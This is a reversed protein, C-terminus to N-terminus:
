GEGDEGEAEGAGGEEDLEEEDDPDPPPCYYAIGRDRIYAALEEKIHTQAILLPFVIPYLGLLRNLKRWIFLDVEDKSFQRKSEGIIMVDQGNRSARGFITVEVAKGKDDALYGRTLREAVSVGYKSELEAKVTEYLTEELCDGVLAPLKRVPHRAKAQAEKLQKLEEETRQQVAALAEIRQEAQEQAARLASYVATMLKAVREVQEDTFDSGLSQRIADKNFLM